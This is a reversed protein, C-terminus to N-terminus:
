LEAEIAEIMEAKTMSNTLTLGLGEAYEILEAKTMSNLNISGAEKDDDVSEPASETM